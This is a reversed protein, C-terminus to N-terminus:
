GIFNIEFSVMFYDLNSELNVMNINNSSGILSRRINLFRFM